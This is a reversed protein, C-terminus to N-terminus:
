RMICSTYVDMSVCGDCGRKGRGKSALTTYNPFHEQIAGPYSKQHEFIGFFFFFRETKKGRRFINKKFNELTRTKKTKYTLILLFSFHSISVYDYLVRQHVAYPRVVYRLPIPKPPPQDVCFSFPSFLLPFFDDREDATVYFHKTYHLM